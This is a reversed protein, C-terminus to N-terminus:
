LVRRLHNFRNKQAKKNIVPILVKLDRNFLINVAKNHNTNMEIMKHNKILIQNM